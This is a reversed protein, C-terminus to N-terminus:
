ADLAGAPPEASASRSTSPVRKSASGSARKQRSIVSDKVELVADVSTSVVTAALESAKDVIGKAMRVTKAM